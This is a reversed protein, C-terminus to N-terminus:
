PKPCPASNPCCTWKGYQQNCARWGGGMPSVGCCAGDCCVTSCTSAGSCTPYCMGNNCTKGAGCNSVCLGNQCSECASCKQSPQGPACPACLACDPLPDDATPGSDLRRARAGADRLMENWANNVTTAAASGQVNDKPPFGTPCVRVPIPELSRTAMNAADRAD